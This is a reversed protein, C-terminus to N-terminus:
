KDSAPTSSSAGVDLGHGVGSRVQYDGPPAISLLELDYILAANPGIGRFSLGEEGFALASPVFIRWKEGVSMRPLAEQWGQIGGDIRTLFHDHRDFEAGELTTGRFKVFIMDNTTAKQGTGATLVKYQLGCPLTTVGPEKANKAFFADGANKNGTTKQALTYSEAAMLLPAIESEKMKPKNQLLDDLAQKITKADLDVGTRKLQLGLRMGAAYSVKDRNMTAPAAGESTRTQNLLPAIEPEQILTPNGELVDLVAQSTIHLDANTSANMLQLGLRMGVAYSLKEKDPPTLPKAADPSEVAFLPYTLVGAVILFTSLKLKM